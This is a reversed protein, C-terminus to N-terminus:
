QILCILTEFLEQMTFINKKCYIQKLPSCVTLLMKPIVLLLSSLSSKKSIGMQKLWVAMKLVMNNKNQGL